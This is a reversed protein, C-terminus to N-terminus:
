TLHLTRGDACRSCGGGTCCVAVHPRRSRHGCRREEGSRHSPGHRPAIQPCPRGSVEPRGSRPDGRHASPTPRKLTIAPSAPSSIARCSEPRFSDALLGRGALRSEAGCPTVLVANTKATPEAVLLPRTTISRGVRRGRGRAARCMEPACRVGHGGSMMWFRMSRPDNGSARL